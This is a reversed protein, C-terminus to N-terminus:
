SGRSRLHVVGDDTTEATVPLARQMADVFTTLDGANFVGSVRLAAARGDAVVPHATYRDVREVVASLPEDEFVLQGSQWSLAQAISAKAVVVPPTVAVPRDSANQSAILQEGAVLKAVVPGPPSARFPASSSSGADQLISVRGEILTVVVNAGLLDVNFSTGTAVVTKDGAHVTFPRTKDHAVDFRAQGQLLDLARSGGRLSVRLRSNADMTVVSGDALTITRREGAATQYLDPKTAQWVGLGILGSLLLGVILSAAIRGGAGRWRLSAGLRRQQHRRARELADRRAVILEPAMADEGFRDWPASIQAWAGPNRADSTLWAEFSENTEVGAEFLAVRWASAEALRRVDDVTETPSRM